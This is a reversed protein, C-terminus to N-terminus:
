ATKLQPSLPLYIWVFTFIIIVACLPMISFCVLSFVALGFFVKAGLPITRFETLVSYSFYGNYGAEEECFLRFPM